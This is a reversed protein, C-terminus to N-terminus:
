SIFLFSSKEGKIMRSSQQTGVIRELSHAEYKTFLAICDAVTESDIDSDDLGENIVNVLDSYFEAHEPLGFFILHRVGKIKHRLFFHARGTYLMLPKRGQLFRARGRSTESVRSYETVSVFDLEKKLFYNRIQVFDFYSPTYIMTHKQKQDLIPPLLKETFYKMRDDSQSSLGNCPVRQFIQRLPNIINAIRAESERVRRRMKFIGSRSKAFRKFTSHITPDLFESCIILQRREAAQGTLFYNRVRSFDTDNNNKPLHNLKALIDNVHDWNQMMLVDSRDVLVIEISSLFDIDGENSESSISMKLGLPSAVIIDSKYFNTYLKVNTGTPIDKKGDQQQKSSDAKPSLAIGIKFDDDDNVDDGFLEQWAKGKEEIVKKRRREQEEQEMMSEKPPPGYENEFREMYEDSINGNLLDLMRKVFSHCFDRTPLLILVTPRTYGQDKLTKGEEEEEEENNDVIEDKNDSNENTIKKVQRNHNQIRGRATLVHNVIHLLTISSVQERWKIKTIEIFLNFFVIFRMM